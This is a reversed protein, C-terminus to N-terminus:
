LYSKGSKLEKIKKGYKKDKATTPKRRSRKREQKYYQLTIHSYM